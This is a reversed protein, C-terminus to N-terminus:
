SGFNTSFTEETERDIMAIFGGCIPARVVRANSNEDVDRSTLRDLGNELSHGTPPVVTRGPGHFIKLSAVPGSM